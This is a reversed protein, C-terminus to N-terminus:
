RPSASGTKVAYSPSKRRVQRRLGAIAAPLTALPESLMLRQLPGWTETERFLRTAPHDAFPVAVACLRPNRAMLWRTAAKDDKHHPDFLIVGGPLTATAEELLAEWGEPPAAAYVKARKPWGLPAPFRPSVLIVEETGLAGAFLIAGFAGMSIGLARGQGPTLRLAEALDPNLYWDNAATQVHVQAFGAATQSLRLPDFGRREADFNDFTAWLRGQGQQTM